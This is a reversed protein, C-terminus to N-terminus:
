NVIGYFSELLKYIVFAPWVLAKLVGLIVEWFGDAAQMFYIFAGVIGLAYVANGGQNTDKSGCKKLKNEIKKEIEAEQAKTTKAM